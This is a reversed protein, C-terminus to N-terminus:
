AGGGVGTLLTFPVDAPEDDPTLYGAALATYVGGDEFTAPIEAVPDGGDAPRIELDYDGAPVTLAATAEGFPLDDVLTTEGDGVTVDVAPADPSAHVVRVRAEGDPVDSNDDVLTLPRFTGESLEGIAAVTYDTGPALSVHGDFAVTHPDGAATITVGYRGPYLSLYESVAGFPVDALLRHDDVYVDVNPADPSFHAVRIVAFERHGDAAATGVGAISAVGLAGTYTLVQRRSFLRESM